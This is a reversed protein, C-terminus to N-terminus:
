GQRGDHGTATVPTAALVQVAASRGRLERAGLDTFRYREVSLMLDRADSSVLLPHGLERGAQELRATAKMVDGHLVVERNRGSVEGTVVEGTHLARRVAPAVGFDREFTKTAAELSAGIAFLCALPRACLV